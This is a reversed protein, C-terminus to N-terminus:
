AGDHSRHDLLTELHEDGWARMTDIVPILSRGLETLAYEVHPPNTAHDRRTVLGDRLMDRLTETLVKPTVAGLAHQLDTFRRPREVLSAVVMGTWKGGVQFPFAAMPCAQDIPARSLPGSSSPTVDM